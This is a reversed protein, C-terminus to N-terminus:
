IFRPMWANRMCLKHPICFQPLVTYVLGILQDILSAPLCDLLCSRDSTPYDVSSILPSTQMPFQQMLQIHMMIHQNAYRPAMIM